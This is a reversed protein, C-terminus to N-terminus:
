FGGVKINIGAAKLLALLDLGVRIAPAIWAGLQKPDRLGERVGKLGDAGLRVSAHAGEIAKALKDSTESWKELEVKGADYTKADKVIAFRKSADAAPFQEAASQVVREATVLAAATTTYATTCASMAILAALGACALLISLLKRDSM